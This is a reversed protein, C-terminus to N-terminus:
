KVFPQEAPTGDPNHYHARWSVLIQAIGVVGAIYPQFKAPVFGGWMNAGQAIFAIIQFLVNVVQTM